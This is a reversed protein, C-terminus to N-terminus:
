PDARHSASHPIPCRGRTASALPDHRVGPTPLAVVPVLLHDILNRGVGPLDIIPKISLTELDARAGIGSRM